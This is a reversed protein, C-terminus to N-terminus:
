IAYKTVLSDSLMAAAVELLAAADADFGCGGVGGGDEGVGGADGATAGGSGGDVRTAGAEGVAVAASASPPPLVAAAAPEVRRGAALASAEDNLAELVGLVRGGRLVPVAVASRTTFGTESDYQPDFLSSRQGDRVCARRKSNLVAAIFGRDAALQLGLAAGHGSSTVCRLEGGVPDVLHMNVREYGLGDALATLVACLKAHPTFRSHLIATTEILTRSEREAAAAQRLLTQNLKQLALLLEADKTPAAPKRNRHRRIALLVLAALPAAILLSRSAAM